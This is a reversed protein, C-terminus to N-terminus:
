GNAVEIGRLTGTSTAFRDAPVGFRNLMTLFLNTLPPRHHASSDFALHRGHRFGGGALIVPLNTNTHSNANGMGSGFLVMTRDLLSQGQQDIKSLKELFNSFHQVQYTEIDILADISEQVQGHHSLAHYGKRYGFRSSAFDGGIELTAVRTSDTQLALAMLDYLVPLDDVMNTNDPAPLETKPKPITSWQEGLELRHEVERVSTFYEDLKDRDQQNLRKALSKADDNVADLISEHLRFRDIAKQRDAQADGVFLRQFLEHPGPIPPVRTGSRTWSMQCGGHIGTESGITLSPFRTKGAITEAARQDVTINGDPQSAADVHRVGSLFAHIAFHGGKVGHDLGSIVTLNERQSELPKLTTSLEYQDGARSPWFAGPYFGLMNGICVMRMPTPETTAAQAKRPLSEMTPLAITLGAAKLFGRRGRPANRM